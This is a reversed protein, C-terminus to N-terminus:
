NKGRSANAHQMALSKSKHRFNPQISPGWRYNGCHTSEAESAPYYYWDGNSFYLRDCVGNNYLEKDIWRIVKHQDAIQKLSEEQNDVNKPRKIDFGHKARWDSLKGYTALVLDVDSIYFAFSRDEGAIEAKIEDVAQAYTDINNKIESELRGDVVADPWPTYGANNSKYVEHLRRTQETKVRVYEDVDTQSLQYMECNVKHGRVASYIFLSGLSGPILLIIVYILSLIEYYIMLGLLWISLAILGGGVLLCTLGGNALFKPKQPKAINKHAQEAM